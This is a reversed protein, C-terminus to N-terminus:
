WKRRSALRRSTTGCTATSSPRCHLVEPELEITAGIAPNKAHQCAATHQVHMAPMCPMICAARSPSDVLNESHM